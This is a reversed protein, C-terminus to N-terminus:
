KVEGNVSISAGFDNIYKFEVSPNKSINNKLPFRTESEPALYTIPTIDVSDISISNLNIYYPTPNNFILDNNEFYWTIKQVEKEFIVNELQKPRYIVKIRNTMSYRLVNEANDSSSPIFRVNLWYLIEKSNPLEKIKNISISNKKGAALKMLPPTVVFDASKKDNQDEIWSQLLLNGIENTNFAVVSESKDNQNYIVRTTELGFGAYSSASFSIVVSITAVFKNFGM